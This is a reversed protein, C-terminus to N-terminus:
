SRRALQYGVEAGIARPNNSVMVGILEDLKATITKGIIAQTAQMQRNLADNIQASVAATVSQQVAPAALAVAEVTANAVAASLTGGGSSGARGTTASGQLSPHLGGPAPTAGGGQGAQYIDLWDTTSHMRAGDLVGMARLAKTDSASYVMGGPSIAETYPTYGGGPADGVVTWGSRNLPGGSARNKSGHATGPTGTTVYAGTPLNPVSGKTDIIIGFRWITGSAPLQNLGMAVDHIPGAADAAAEGANRMRWALSSMKLDAKEAQNGERQLQINLNGVEAYLKKTEDAAAPTIIGLKELASVYQNVEKDDFVGDSTMKMLLLDAVIKRTAKDYEAQLDAVKAAHEETSLKNAALAANAEALGQNYKEQASGVNLVTSLYQRNNETMAKIEDATMKVKPAVKDLAVGQDGLAREWAKGYQEARKYEDVAFEIREGYMNWQARTLAINGGYKVMLENGIQAETRLDNLATVSPALADAAMIKAADIVNKISAELMAFQGASTDAASGVKALQEEAQQLFAETFADNADMGSKKLKAVKEDFGIVALGLQDFRMTTKNALALVLQNMDMGLGAVVKSLRITDKETKVLGLSVLDTATGMAEFDSLTGRTAARLKNLLADGTTGITAALRDFKIRTYELQAGQKAFDYVQKLKQFGQTVLQTASYIDTLSLKAEQNSKNAAQQSKKQEDLAKNYASQSVGADKLAKKLADMQEQYKKADAIAKQAETSIVIEVKSAM